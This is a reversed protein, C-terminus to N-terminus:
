SQGGGVPHLSFLPPDLLGAEHAAVGAARALEITQALVQQEDRGVILPTPSKECVHTHGHWWAQYMQAAVAPTVVLHVTGAIVDVEVLFEPDRRLDPIATM